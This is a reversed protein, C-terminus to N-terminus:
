EHRLLTDNGNTQRRKRNINFLDKLGNFDKKMILGIGQTNLSSKTFYRDNSQNYVRISLNGNPKLLYRIDFDGIFSTNATNANDRYGFQGNILLRNNLLRGSLLGEYEANNWGEDGTSINAGFNWNTSKFMSSLVNNIQTSITGSLLSQMALSTQSQQEESQAVSNNNGQPYFRGIGLLYLVQQNMEDESNIISRIMQKEDSSVTPMDLDFTIEPNQPQGGINMICNVRVTNNTFSNGVNLDSLSVGNVTHVAQLNLQAMYPNGGFTISSGENFIFNKKIIDQITVGYTGHQITYTGFMSFDGKNYYSARLVGMGNITIYDDTRSDMLLRVTLDPTCDILFNILVDSQADEYAVTSHADTQSAGDDEISPISEWSIFKQDAIADPSSVNYVFTSNPQPSANIDIVVEGRQGKIGVNGSAFVTGYFSNEGFDTFNYALLNDAAIDIDYKLNKLNTHYLHGNLIGKNNHSDYIPVNKFQIDNPIFNITDNKLYYKCNVPTITAEGNVIVKGILNIEKLKGVVRVEGNAQGDVDSMFNGTFSELFDIHTGLANIGLDIYSRNLSVYGNVLTMSEPGDNAKAKISIEKTDADWAANANLTGLSGDEFKFDDVQLKAWANIDKGFPTKIYAQGSALGSFEVSHFDILDLVYGVDIGRLDITLSDNLNNTATGNISIHQNDHMVAFHNIRINNRSYIITSPIVNWVTKEINIHSPLVNINAIQTGNEDRYFQSVANFVGSLRDASNNDWSFSTTLKNDFARGAIKFDTNNGNKRQKAVGIDCLLTDGVSKVVITGNQYNTKNYSFDKLSCNMTIDRMKDNVSANIRLPKHLELPINLLKEIWDGGYLNANIAFDNGASNTMKPLGPMTPLKNGIFNTFSQTLTNYDFNGRLDVNGFDSEMTLYHINDAYGSAIKASEMTLTDTQSMMSVNSFIIRGRADNIESATFDADINGCFAADGWRKTMNIAGPRLCVISTKFKIDKANRMKRLNGEMTMNVNPDEIKVTGSLADKIYKGSLSINNFIYNNYSLENINGKINVKLNNLPKIVGDSTIEAVVKGLKKEETLRSLDFGNSTVKANFNSTPSLSFKFDLNGSETQLEGVAVMQRNESSSVNGNLKMTGLASTIRDINNNRSVFNQTVMEIIAQSAELNEVNLYWAPVNQWKRIWGNARLKFDDAVSKMAMKSVYLNTSTGHFAASFNVTTEIKGIQPYLSAIDSFAIQSENINGKYKLTPMIIGNVDSKYTAGIGEIAINSHPLQLNVDSACCGNKNGEVKLSLKRIDLGSSEKLAIRKININVSDENLVKLKFYASIEEVDIHNINFKGPTPALDNRHYKISSRRVILSNVRLDLRNNSATDNSALSDLIFRFNEAADASPKYLDLHAGFVQASSISIKGELLPLIEIKVALRDSTLMDKGQKDKILVGDIVLRNFLGLNVNEINVETGLKESLAAAIRNGM